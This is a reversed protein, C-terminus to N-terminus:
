PKEGASKESGFRARNSGNGRGVNFGHANAWRTGSNELDPQGCNLYDEGQRKDGYLTLLDSMEPIRSEDGQRIMALCAQQVAEVADSQANLFLSVAALADGLALRSEVTRSKAEGFIQTWSRLTGKRAAALRMAADAAGEAVQKLRVPDDLKALVIKLVDRDGTALAVAALDDQASLREAAARCVVDFAGRVATEVLKASPM